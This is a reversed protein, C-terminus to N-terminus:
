PTSCPWRLRTRCTSFIARSSRATMGTRGCNADTPPTASKRVSGELVFNVGLREAIQRVDVHRGKFSFASTRAVVRLRDMRSLASILDDALGDGFYEYEPDTSANSFPLVAISAKETPGEPSTPEAPSKVPAVFQYGRGPVTAIYRREARGEGLARRLISINQNLNNEEVALGPWVARMLDDKDLVNGAHEVLCTLTDFAKPTLSVPTGDRRLLLRKGLDFRFEGFEYVRASRDTV